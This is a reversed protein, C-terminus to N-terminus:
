GSSKGPADEARLVDLIAEEDLAPLAEAIELPAAEREWAGATGNRSRVESRLRPRYPAPAPRVLGFRTRNTM